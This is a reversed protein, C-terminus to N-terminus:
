VALGVLFRCSFCIASSMAARMSRFSVLTCGRRFESYAVGTRRIPLRQPFFGLLCAAFKSQASQGIARVFLFARLVACVIWQRLRTHFGM